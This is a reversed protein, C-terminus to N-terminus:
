RTRVRGQHNGARGATVHPSRRPGPGRRHHRHAADKDPLSLDALQFIEPAVKPDLVALAIPEDRGSESSRHPQFKAPLQSSPAPPQSSSAPAPLSNPDARASHTM